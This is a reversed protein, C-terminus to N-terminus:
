GGAVRERGRWPRWCEAGTREPGTREPGVARARGSGFRKGLESMVCPGRRDHVCEDQAVHDGVCDQALTGHQDKWVM